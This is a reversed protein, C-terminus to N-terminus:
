DAESRVLKLKSMREPDREIEDVFEIRIPPPQAGARALEDEIAAVLRQDLEDRNTDDSAVVSVLIETSRHVVQHQRIDREAALPSRFHMPHIAVQGGKGDPLQLVEDSRGEVQQLVPFPRGCPCPDPSVAVLDEVEYRIIPQTRLSLNTVLLKAGTEGAAVPRDDDDVVEFIFQDDMAHVRHCECEMGFIGVETIGYMDFPRSHWAAEIRDVMETTRLESSTSIVRPAIELRGDLQEAALVAAVSPCAHLWEPQFANLAEVLRSVPTTADLRCVKALGIDVSAAGRYTAHLPHGAAVTAERLRRGIQITVGILDMFRLLQAIYTAWEASDFVFVGKRGSTGGTTLVRYRGLYHGDARAFSALHEQLSDLRLRPDTAWEDFRDMLQSKRVPPLAALPAHEPNPLDAYIDRYVASRTVASHVTERLLERQLTEIQERIWRDHRTLKRKFSLAVALERLRCAEYRPRRLDIPM